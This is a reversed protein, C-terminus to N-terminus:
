DSYNCNAPNFAVYSICLSSQEEVSTFENTLTNVKDEMRTWTVWTTEEKPMYM